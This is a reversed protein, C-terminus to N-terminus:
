NGGSKKLNDCSIKYLYTDYIESYNIVKVTDILIPKSSIVYNAGLNKAACFDITEPDKHFTYVRSGWNDYYTKRGSESLSTKIIERFQHKYELPYDPYYGDLSAIGNMPAIMPDLEVSIVKSDGIIRKIKSYWDNKYYYEFSSIGKYVSNQVREVDYGKLVQFTAHWHPTVSLIQIIQFFLSFILLVQFTKINSKSALLFICFVLFSYLFYFRDFQLGGILSMIEERFGAGFPTRVFAFLINCVLLGFFLYLSQIRTEKSLMSIVLGVILAYTLPYTVHYQGNIMMDFFTNWFSPILSTVFESRHSVYGSYFVEFLFLSANGAFLGGAYFFGGRFINIGPRVRFIFHSIPIYTILLFIGSLALNSNWGLFFLCVFALTKKTPKLSDLNIILWYFLPIGAVSLGIVSYSISLPFILTCAITTLASLKFQRCLLFAGILATLRVIVDYTIYAIWPNNIRYLYTLPQSFGMLAWVPIKGSLFLAKANIDGWAYYGINRYIVVVSDLNDHVGVVSTEQFFFPFYYSFFAFLIILFMKKGSLNSSEGSRM